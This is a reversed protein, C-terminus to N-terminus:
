KIKRLWLSGPTKDPTYSSIAKALQDSCRLSMNAGSWIIEFNPNFMLFAQVLYQENWFKRYEFIWKKPYERPFFMDHIHIIVGKNLRPLIELYEYQVDSGIRLVHSSDIFLIDDRKLQLFFEVPVDQVKKSIIKSLGPLKHPLRKGPYPEIAMLKGKRKKDEKANMMMANASIQTSFGSGIEIMTNPKFHRVMSHLIEADVSEYEGNQMYYEHLKGTKNQSFGDYETRYKSSLTHLFKLQEALNLKIGPLSEKKDWLKPSLERTDPIPEYFNNPSVHFGLFQWFAFTKRIILRLFAGYLYGIDM